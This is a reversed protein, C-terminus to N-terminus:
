CGTVGPLNFRITDFRYRLGLLSGNVMGPHDSSGQEWKQLNFGPCLIGIRHPAMGVFAERDPKHLPPGAADGALVKGKVQGTPVGDQDWRPGDVEAPRFIRVAESEPHQEQFRFPDSLGKIQIRKFKHRGRGAEAFLILCFCGTEKGEHFGAYSGPFWVGELCLLSCHEKDAVEQNGQELGSWGLLARRRGPPLGILGHGEQIGM